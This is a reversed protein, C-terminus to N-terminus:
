ICVFLDSSCRSSRCIRSFMVLRSFCVCFHRHEGAFGGQELGHADEMKNTQHPNKQCCCRVEAIIGATGVHQQELTCSKLPKVSDAVRLQSTGTRGRLSSLCQPSRGLPVRMGGVSSFLGQPFGMELLASTLCAFTGMPVHQCIPKKLLVVQM